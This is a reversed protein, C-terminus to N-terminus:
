TYSCNSQCHIHDSWDNKCANELRNMGSIAPISSERNLSSLSPLICSLFIPMFRIRNVSSTYLQCFYKQNILPVDNNMLRCVEPFRCDIHVSNIQMFVTLKEGSKTILDPPPHVHPIRAHTDCPLERTAYRETQPKNALHKFIEIENHKVECGRLIHFFSCIFFQRVECLYMVVEKVVALLTFLVHRKLQSNLTRFEYEFINAM